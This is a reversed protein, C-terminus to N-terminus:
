HAHAHDHDHSHDHDHGHDEGHEEHHEDHGHHVVLQSLFLATLFTFIYAQIFAVLLELFYIAITGALPILAMGHGIGFKWQSLQVFFGLLTAVIIHGGTMNAFLRLALAIPKVFTGVIEVVVMIPWMFWPAGGTLHKCFGVPDKALAVGNFWIFAIAALAGTVWISQTATGGFGVYHGNYENLGFLATIDGFPILGMLNNILIFWFFTWLMPCYRDTQEGLMPKFVENRLYLCVTEVMNAKLGQSRFDDLTHANGTAIKKAAPLIMWLTIAGSLILMLTANSIFWQGYIPKDIVHDVPNSAAFTLLSDLVDIM